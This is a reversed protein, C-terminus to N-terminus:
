YVQLAVVWAQQVDQEAGPTSWFQFIKIDCWHTMLVFWFMPLPLMVKEPALPKTLIFAVTLALVMSVMGAFVITYICTLPRRFNVPFYRFRLM